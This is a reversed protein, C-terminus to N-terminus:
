KQWFSHCQFRSQSSVFRCILFYIYLIFLLCVRLIHCVISVNSFTTNNKRLFFSVWIEMKEGVEEDDDIIATGNAMDNKEEEKPKEVEPTEVVEAAAEAAAEGEMKADAAEGGEGAEGAEGDAEADGNERVGRATFRAFACSARCWLSSSDSLDFLM